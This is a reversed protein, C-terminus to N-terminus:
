IMLHVNDSVSLGARGPTHGAGAGRWQTEADLDQPACTDGM